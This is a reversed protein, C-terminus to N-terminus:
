KTLKTKKVKPKTERRLKKFAKKEINKIELKQEDFKVKEKHIEKKALRATKKGNPKKNIRKSERKAM